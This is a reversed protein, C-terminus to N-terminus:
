EHGASFRFRGWRDLLLVPCRRRRRHIGHRSRLTVILLRDAVEEVTLPVGAPDVVTSVVSRWSHIRRVCRDDQVVQVGSDAGIVDKAM